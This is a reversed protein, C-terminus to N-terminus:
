ILVWDLFDVFINSNADHWENKWRILKVSKLM